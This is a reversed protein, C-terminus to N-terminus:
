EVFEEQLIDKMCMNPVGDEYNWTHFSDGRCYKYSKCKKCKANTTIRKKRFKEFRNEWVDVFSDTRINGQVLEKYRVNPCVCIDGNSLISGIFIGAGCIFGHPRTIQEYKLGLYHSCDNDVVMRGEKRKEIIFNFMKVLGKKDLLIGDNLCARGIPDVCMVRWERIGKDLLLQYIDELEGLNKQNAVTTIQLSRLTELGKLLDIAHMIKDFSGPVRRFSEHTEKLGDLSISISEMNTERYKEIIEEDILMGNTTMGWHFGLGVAYKMIDFLDKRMLPEGGTVTLFVNQAGYYNHIELLTKKLEEATIEDKPIDYGCSSGCHECKANCRLTVELFLNSLRPHKILYENQDALDDLDKKKERIVAQTDKKRRHEWDHDSYYLQSKALGDFYGSIGSVFSNATELAEVFEKRNEGTLLQQDSKGDKEIEETLSNLQERLNNFEKIDHKIEEENM